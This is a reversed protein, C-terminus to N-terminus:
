PTGCDRRRVKTHAAAGPSCSGAQGAGRWAAGGKEPPRPMRSRGSSRSEKRATSTVPPAGRRAVVTRSAMPSRGGMLLPCLPHAVLEKTEQRLSTDFCPVLHVTVTKCWALHPLADACGRNGDRRGNAHHEGHRTHPCAALLVTTGYQQLVAARQTHLNSISYPSELGTDGKWRRMRASACRTMRALACGGRYSWMVLVMLGALTSLMRLPTNSLHTRTPSGTPCATTASRKM